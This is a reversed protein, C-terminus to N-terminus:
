EKRFAGSTPWGSANLLKRMHISICPVFNPLVAGLNPRFSALAPRFWAQAVGWIPRVVGLRFRDFQALHRDLWPVDPM